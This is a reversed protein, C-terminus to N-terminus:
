FYNKKYKKTNWFIYLTLFFVGLFTTTYYNTVYSLTLLEMVEEIYDTGGGTSSASREQPRHSPQRGSYSARGHVYGYDKAGDSRNTVLFLWM